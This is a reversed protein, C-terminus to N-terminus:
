EEEMIAQRFSDLARTIENKKATGIPDPTQSPKPTSNLLTSYLLTSHSITDPSKEPEPESGHSITDRHYGQAPEEPTGEEGHSITQYPIPVRDRPAPLPIGRLKLVAPLAPYQYGVEVLFPLLEAPLNVLVREIGALVKPSRSQHKPWNKLIIWDKWRFAKGEARFTGLIAVMEAGELKTDRVIREDSIEYVGAINALPNTLLYLFLYRQAPDIRQVWPDDWFYTDVSRSSSM